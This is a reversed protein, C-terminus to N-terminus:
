VKTIRDTNGTSVIDATTISPVPPMRMQSRWDKSAAMLGVIIAITWSKDNIEYGSGVIGLMVGGSGIIFATLASLFTIVYQTM